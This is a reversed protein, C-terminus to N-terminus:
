PQLYSLITEMNITRSKIFNKSAQTESSCGNL